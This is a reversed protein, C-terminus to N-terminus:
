SRCGDSGRHRMASRVHGGDRRLWQVGYRNPGHLDVGRRRRDRAVKATFADWPIIAGCQATRASTLSSETAARRSHCSGDFSRRRSRGPAVVRVGASGAAPGRHRPRIGGGLGVRERRRPSRADRRAGASRPFRRRLWADLPGGADCWAPWARRQRREGSDAVILGVLHAGRVPSRTRGRRRVAASCQFRDGGCVGRLHADDRPHFPPPRISHVARQGLREGVRRRPGHRQRRHRAGAADLRQLDPRGRVDSIHRGLRAACVDGVHARLVRDFLRAGVPQSPGTPLGATRRASRPGGSPTPGAPRGAGARIRARRGARRSGIGMALRALRQRRRRHRVLAGRERRGGGRARCRSPVAAPGRDPREVGQAGAHYSGAWGAGMLARFVLASWFGTSVWAFGAFAVATLAVSGLYVRKPDVRDTLSSLLPVVITYAAYYIGSIWGAETNSLSWASILTPLLAAVSFAGIQACAQAACMAVVGRNLTM